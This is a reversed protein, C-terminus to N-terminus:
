PGRVIAERLIRLREQLSHEGSVETAMLGTSTLESLEEDIRRPDMDFPDCDGAHIGGLRANSEAELHAANTERDELSAIVDHANRLPEDPRGREAPPVYYGTRIEDEARKEYAVMREVLGQPVETGPSWEGWTRLHDESISIDRYLLNNARLWVLARKLKQPNVSLM